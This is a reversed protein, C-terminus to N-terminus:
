IAASADKEDVGRARLKRTIASKGHENHLASEAFRVAFKISLTNKTAYIILHSSHLTLKM